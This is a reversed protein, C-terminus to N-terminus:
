DIKAEPLFVTLSCCILQYFCRCFEHFCAFRLKNDNSNNNILAISLSDDNNFM